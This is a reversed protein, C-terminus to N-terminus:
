PRNPEPQDSLEEVAEDMQEGTEEFPGENREEMWYYVGAGVAVILVILVLFNRM